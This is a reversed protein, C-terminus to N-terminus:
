GEEDYVRTFKGLKIPVTEVKGQFAVDLFPRETSTRLIADIDSQDKNYLESLYNRIAELMMEKGRAFGIHFDESEEYDDIPIDPYFKQMQQNNINRSLNAGVMEDLVNYDERFNYDASNTEFDAIEYKIDTM